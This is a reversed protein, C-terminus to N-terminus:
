KNRSQEDVVVMEEKEVMEVIKIQSLIYNRCESWGRTLMKKRFSKEMDDIFFEEDRSAKIKNALDDFIFDYHKLSKLQSYKLAKLYDKKSIKPKM